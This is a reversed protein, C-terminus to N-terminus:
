TTSRRIPRGTRCTTARATLGSSRCWGCGRRRPRSSSIPARTPGATPSSARRRQQPPFGGAGPRASLVPQAGSQLASARRLNEADAARACKAGVGPLRAYCRRDRSRVYARCIVIAAHNTGVGGTRRRSRLLIPYRDATVSRRCNSGSTCSACSSPADGGVARGDDSGRRAPEDPVARGRAPEGRRVAAHRHPRHRARHRRAAARRALARAAHRRVEAGARERRLRRHAFAKKMVDPRHNRIAGSSLEIGNCVIDYQIAKIALIKDSITRTSRLSNTSRWTRCPSRTTPSTSRRRRRTGNTCRSISSGASSSATRPSSASSRASRPARRGPSSSSSCGSRRRRLVGRRRGELGLQARIASRDRGAGVNNAVPGRGIVKGAKRSCLRHLRAGAAGESQAWANMRDCFSRPQRRGPAPIAWCRRRRCKIWSEHSCRSARAASIRRCTRCRSRIACTPSTPATNRADGRCVSHASVEADGAQRRFVGRVRRAAGARGRRVRGGPHRLEDRRRASLVRRALPRRARGRRPLLARDPLLPRLGRDHHAAQVAAAGAAARLVQGSAAAVAGSLRARGGPSSATLIPTQFEFFGQEKM